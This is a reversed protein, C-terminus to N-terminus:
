HPLWRLRLWTRQGCAPCTMWRSHSKGPIWLTFRLIRRVAESYGITGNELCQACEYGVEGLSPTSAPHHTSASYLDSKGGSSITQHSHPKDRFLADKGDTM